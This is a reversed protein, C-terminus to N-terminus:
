WTFSISKFHINDARKSSCLAAVGQRLGRPGSVLVGVSSGKCGLLISELDPKEGYHVNTNDLLTQYPLAELETEASHFEAGTSSISPTEMNSITVERLNWKKNCLFALSATFSICLCIAVMYLGSRAADSFTATSSKQEAKYIYYRTLVGIILLFMVFSSAIVAALWLWSSPGLPATIPVDNRGPRFQITRIHEKAYDGPSEERTVYAEIQLNSQSIDIETSSAPLLLELMTLDVAKKFICVLKIQPMKNNDGNSIFLLDRIISIFPTIGSGGSIMVLRDHRHFDTSAPGYPGELSIPLPDPSSQSSLKEYLHKSWNGECKIVISLSDTDMNSSSTVTFPHWQLRSISSVNIFVMSSPMYSLGPHKAFNLEITQCPLVRASVLRVRQQSQLFRLYRDLLFLYFGPLVTTASPFGVHFVFFVVFVVYLHHAYFFLEFFQRRIQPWTMAWLCLGAALATEGAINSVGVKPWQWMQSIQNTKAWYIIFILGHLMFLTMAIHGLWIHYKISEESTVGIIRLVSSGRTVPFFLFSLCIYGVLGLLLAMYSLKVEWVLQGQSSADQGANPFIRHIYSGFSWVLLVVFMALFLMEIWSVIGLPGRVLAPNKWSGWRGCSSKGVYVEKSGLQMYFSALLAVFLVPFVYILLGAGSGEFYASATRSRISPFWNVYFTNTPIMIWVLLYGLSVVLIILRIVWRIVEKEM